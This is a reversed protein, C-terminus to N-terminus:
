EQEVTTAAVPQESLRKKSDSEGWFQITQNEKLLSEGFVGGIDSHKNESM